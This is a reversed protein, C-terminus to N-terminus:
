STKSCTLSCRSLSPWSRKALGRLVLDMVQELAQETGPQTWEHAHSPNHFRIIANKVALATLEPDALAFLGSEMGDRVIKTILQLLHEVHEQVVERSEAALNLYNAFLVPDDLLKKRKDRFLTLVWRRLRQDAPSDENAVQELPPMQRELWDRAVAERLAAKSAFHRYVSGHSVGLEKAVDVVTTKEPGYRRLVDVTALLIREPTLGESM